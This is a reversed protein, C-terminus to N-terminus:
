TKDEWFYISSKNNLFWEWLSSLEKNLVDKIKHNDKDQYFICTDGAYFYPRNELSTQPFDNIYILFLLPGLIYGRPLGCNLSGAESFISDM